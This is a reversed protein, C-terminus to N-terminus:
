ASGVSCALSGKPVRAQESRRAGPAAIQHPERAAVGGRAGWFRGEVNPERECGIPAGNCPFAPTSGSSVAPSSSPASPVPLTCSRPLPSAFPHRNRGRVQSAREPCSLPCEAPRGRSTGGAACAELPTGRSMRRAARATRRIGSGGPGVDRVGRRAGRRDLVGVTFVRRPMPASRRVDRVELRTDRVELRTDRRETWAGRSELRTGVM